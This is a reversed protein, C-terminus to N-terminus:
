VETITRLLHIQNALVRRQNAIAEIRDSDLKAVSELVASPRATSATLDRTGSVGTLVLASDAGVRNAAAIDTRLNDGVFLCRAPDDVGWQALATRVAWEDPKGCLHIPEFGMGRFFGVYAGAAPRLGGEGPYTPDENTGILLAGNLVARLGQVMRERTLSRDVGVVIIDATDDNVLRHGQAELARALADSTLTLIRHTGGREALYGLVLDASSIIEYAEVQFGLGRLREALSSSM